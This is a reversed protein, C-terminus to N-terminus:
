RRGYSPGGPATPKNKEIVSKETRAVQGDHLVIKFGIEAFPSKEAEHLMWTGLTEVAQEPTM